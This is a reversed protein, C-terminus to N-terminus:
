TVFNQDWDKMKPCALLEESQFTSFVPQPITQIQNNGVVAANRPLQYSIIYKVAIPTAVLHCNNLVCTCVVICPVDCFLCYM